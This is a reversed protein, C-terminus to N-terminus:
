IVYDLERVRVKPPKREDPMLRAFGEFRGDNGQERQLVDGPVIETPHSPRYLMADIRVGGRELIMARCDKCLRVIDAPDINEAQVQTVCPMWVVAKSWPLVLYWAALDIQAAAIRRRRKNSRIVPHRAAAKLRKRFGPHKFELREMRRENSLILNAPHDNLSDGDRHEVRQGHPIPGHHQEYVVQAVPRWQEWKTGHYSVRVFWQVPRKRSRRRQRKTGLPLADAM